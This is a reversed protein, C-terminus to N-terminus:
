AVPSAIIEFYPCYRRFGLKEYLQIAAANAENANLVITAVGRRLLESVVATTVCGGWGRGRRDRRTYINGVGGVGEAPAFVHTGAVAVLSTGERVGYYIGTELMAPLFFDPAEGATDGDRYLEAVLDLDSPGLRIAHGGDGGAFRGADLVMRLMPRRDSVAYDSQLLPLVEPRVVFYINTHRRLRGLLEQFVTPLFAAEGAALVIPM